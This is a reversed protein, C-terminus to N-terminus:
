IGRLDIYIAKIKKVGGRVDKTSNCEVLHHLESSPLGMILVLYLFVEPPTSM